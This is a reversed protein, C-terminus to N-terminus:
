LRWTLFVDGFLVTPSARYSGSLMPLGQSANLRGSLSLSSSLATETLVFVGLERYNEVVAQLESAMLRMALSTTPVQVRAGLWGSQGPWDGAEVRYGVDLGVADGLLRPFSVEPGFWTRLLGTTENLGAGATAGVLVHELPAISTTVSGHQSPQLRPVLPSQDVDLAPTRVMRHSATLTWWSVPALSLDASSQEVVFGGGDLLNAGGRVTAGLFGVGRWVAQVQGGADLRSRTGDASTLVGGSLRPMVMVADGVDLQLAGYAGATIRDAAFATTTLEPIAGGYVGVEIREGWLRAGLQGGDVIPAGPVQRLRFRGASGVVPGSFSGLAAEWVYIEAPDAPRFRQNEPALVDGQVMMNASATLPLVFPLHTQSTVVLGPRAFVSKDTTSSWWTQQRLGVMTRTSFAKTSPVHQVLPVTAATVRARRAEVAVRDVPAARKPMARSPTPEPEKLVGAVVTDGVNIKTGECVARVESASVVVCTGTPRGRREFSLTQGTTLGHRSGADVFVETATKYTVVGPPASLLMGALVFLPSM